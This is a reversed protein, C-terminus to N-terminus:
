TTVVLGDVFAQITPLYSAPVAGVAQILQPKSTEAMVPCNQVRSILTARQLAQEPTDKQAVAVVGGAATPQISGGGATVFPLVSAVLQMMQGMVLVRNNSEVISWQMQQNGLVSGNGNYGDLTLTGKQADVKLSQITTDRNTVVDYRPQGDRDRGFHIRATGGPVAQDACGFLVCALLIAILYRM